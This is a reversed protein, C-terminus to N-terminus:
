VTRFAGVGRAKMQLATNALLQDNGRFAHDLCVVSAPKRDLIAALISESIPDALCVCLAGGDVFFVPQGEVETREVATTLRFGAKLMVEALLSDPTAGPQLHEAYLTLQRALDQPAVSADWVKFNSPALRYTRFGPRGCAESAATLRARTIDSIVPFDEYGTSEPLQVLLCRRNGGDEANLQMVADGTAGSGAFFDLVLDNRDPRTGIRLMHQILRTPKPTDFVSGSSGFSVRALLEKKADQTSGVDTHSWITQPVVGSQVESLFVKRRPIGDGNVGWWIRDDADLEQFKEYSVAWYRGTPPGEVVRGAPSTCGWLGASYPNRASLAVSIWPGRPDNDRNTYQSLQEESRPLLNRDWRSANRGYVLVFDHSESFHESSNKVAFVKHWVVTAIFNEQGFVEDMLHRLNAVEHDDISVFIVGDERLLNRALFLRPYMMSLWRSHVRGATDTRTSARQGEDDVQGSYRLYEGLSDTFNDPYLFDRGTNYPPDIYIMRVAGAYARQLLKLVELNDGEVFVHRTDDFGVSAERDPVLTGTSTAQAARIADAKGAWTLGYRERTSETPEGIAQRLRDVDLHGETFAEPLLAQLAARRQQLVDPSALSLRPPM